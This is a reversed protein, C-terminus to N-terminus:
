NPAEEIPYIEFLRDQEQQNMRRQYYLSYIDWVCERRLYYSVQYRSVWAPVDQFFIFVPITRNAYIHSLKEAVAKATAKSLKLSDTIM